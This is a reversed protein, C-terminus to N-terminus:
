KGPLSRAGLLFSAVALRSCLQASGLDGSDWCLVQGNLIRGDMEESMKRLTESSGPETAGLPFSTLQGGRGVQATKVGDGQAACKAATNLRKGATVCTVSAMCVHSSNEAHGRGGPSMNELCAGSKM